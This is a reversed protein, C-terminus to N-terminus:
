FRRYVTEPRAGYTRLFGTFDRFAAMLRPEFGALEWASTFTVIYVPDELLRAVTLQWEPPVSPPLYWPWEFAEGSKGAREQAREAERLAAPYWPPTRDLIVHEYLHRADIVWREEESFNVTVTLIFIQSPKRLWSGRDVACSRTVALEM